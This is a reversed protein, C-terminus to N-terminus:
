SRIFSIVGAIGGAISVYTNVSNWLEQNSDQTFYFYVASVAFICIGIWKKSRREGKPQQNAIQHASQLYAMMAQEEEEKKLEKKVIPTYGGSMIFARGAPLLMIAKELGMGGLINIYGKSQLMDLYACLTHFDSQDTAKISTTANEPPFKQLIGDLIQAQELTM